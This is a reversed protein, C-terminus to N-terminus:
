ERGKGGFLARELARVRRLLSPLRRLAATERHFRLEERQPTGMVRTGDSVDKHVGSQPGVFAKEGLKLHGAVGSQAMLVSGAGIQTSGAV